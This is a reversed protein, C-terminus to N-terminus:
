SFISYNNSKDVVEYKLNDIVLEITDEWCVYYYLKIEIPGYQKGFSM